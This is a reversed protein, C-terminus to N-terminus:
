RVCLYWMFDVLMLRKVSVMWKLRLFSVRGVMVFASLTIAVIDSQALAIFFKPLPLPPSSIRCSSLIVSCAICLLVYLAVDVGIVVPTGNSELTGSYVLLSVYCVLNM